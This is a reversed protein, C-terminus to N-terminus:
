RGDRPHALLVLRWAHGLVLLACLAVCAGLFGSWTQDGYTVHSVYAGSFCVCRATVVILPSCAIVLLVVIWWPSTWHPFRSFRATSGALPNNVTRHNESRMWEKFTPGWASLLPLGERSLEWRYALSLLRVIHGLFLMASLSTSVILPLMWGMFFASVQYHANLQPCVQYAVGILVLPGWGFGPVAAIWWPNSWHPFRKFM